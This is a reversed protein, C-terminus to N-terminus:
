YTIIYKGANYLSAATAAHVHWGVANNIFLLTSAPMICCAATAAHVQWGATNTIFLLCAVCRERVHTQLGQALSSIKAAIHAKLTSQV